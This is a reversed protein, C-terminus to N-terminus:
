CLRGAAIGYQRATKLLNWCFAFSWKQAQTDPQRGTPVCAPSMGIGAALSFLPSPFRPPPSKFMRRSAYTNNGNQLQAYRSQCIVAQVGRRGCTCSCQQLNYSHFANFTLKVIGIMNDLILEANWTAAPPFSWVSPPQKESNAASPHSSTIDGYWIKAQAGSRDKHNIELLSKGSKCWPPILTLM